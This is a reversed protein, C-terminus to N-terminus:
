AWHPESRSMTIREADSSKRHKTSGKLGKRSKGQPATIPAAGNSKPHKEEWAGAGTHQSGSLGKAERPTTIRKADIRKFTKQRSKPGERGPVTTPEASNSKPLNKGEGGGRSM